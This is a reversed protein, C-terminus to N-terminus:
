ENTTVNLVGTKCRVGSLSSIMKLESPRALPVAPRFDTNVLTVCIVIMACLSKLSIIRSMKSRGSMGVSVFGVHLIEGLYFGWINGRPLQGKSLLQADCGM